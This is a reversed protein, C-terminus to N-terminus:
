GGVRLACNGAAVVEFGQQHEGFLVIEGDKGVFAVGLDPAGGRRGAQQFDGVFCTGVGLPNEHEVGQGFAGVQGAQARAENSAAGFADGFDAFQAGKGTRGQRQRDLADGLGCPGVFVVDYGAAGQVLFFEGEGCLDELAHM